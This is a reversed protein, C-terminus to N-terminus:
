GRCGQRKDGFKTWGARRGASGADMRRRQRRGQRRGSIGIYSLDARCGAGGAM